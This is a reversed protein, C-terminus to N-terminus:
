REANDAMDFTWLVLPRLAPFSVEIEAVSVALDVGAAEGHEREAIKEFISREPFFITHHLQNVILLPGVGIGPGIRCDGRLKAVIEIEILCGRPVLPSDDGDM